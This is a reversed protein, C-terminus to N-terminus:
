VITLAYPGTKVCGRSEMANEHTMLRDGYHIISCGNRFYDIWILSVNMISFLSKGRMRKM